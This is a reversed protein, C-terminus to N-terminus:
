EMEALNDSHFSAALPLVNYVSLSHLGGGLGWKKVNNVKRHYNPWFRIVEEQICGVARSLKM